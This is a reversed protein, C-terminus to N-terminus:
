HRCHEEPFVSPEFRALANARSRHVEAEAEAEAEVELVRFGSKSRGAAEVDRGKAGGNLVVVGRADASRVTGMM